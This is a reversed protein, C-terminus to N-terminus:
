FVYVLYTSVLGFFIFIYCCDCPLCIVGLTGRKQFSNRFTIVIGIDNRKQSKMLDGKQGSILM